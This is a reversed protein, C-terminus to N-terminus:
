GIRFANIVEQFTETIQCDCTMNERIIVKKNNAYVTDLEPNQQRGIQWNMWKDSKSFSCLNSSLNMCKYCVYFIRLQM